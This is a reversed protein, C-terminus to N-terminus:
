RFVVAITYTITAVVVILFGWCGGVPVDDIAGCPEIGSYESALHIVRRVRISTLLVTLGLIGAQGYLLLWFTAFGRTWLFVGVLLLGLGLSLRRISLFKGKLEAEKIYYIGSNYPTGLTSVVLWVIFWIGETVFLYVIAVVLKIWFEGM